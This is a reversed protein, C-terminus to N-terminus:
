RNDGGKPTFRNAPDAGVGPTPPPEDFLARVAAIADGTATVELSLEGDRRSLAWEAFSCCDRELAVLDRLEREVADLGEFRLQVGAPIPRKEILARESLRLWRQRRGVLDGRGLACAPGHAVM